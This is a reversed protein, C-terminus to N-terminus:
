YCVVLLLVVVDYKVVIISVHSVDCIFLVKIHFLVVVDYKVVIVSVHSVDCIFLVKLHFWIGKYIQVITFLILRPLLFCSLNSLHETYYFQRQGQPLHVQWSEHLVRPSPVRQANAIKSIWKEGLYCNHIRNYWDHSSLLVDVNKNYYNM